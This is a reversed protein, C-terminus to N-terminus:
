KLSIFYQKVTKYNTSNYFSTGVDEVDYFKNNFRVRDGTQFDLNRFSQILFTTGRTRINPVNFDNKNNENIYGFKFPVGYDFYNEEEINIPIKKSFFYGNEKCFKAGLM